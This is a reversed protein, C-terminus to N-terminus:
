VQKEKLKFFSAMWFIIYLSLPLFYNIFGTWSQPLMIVGKTTEYPGVRMGNSYFMGDPMIEEPIMSRLSVYNLWLLISGIAIVGLGTKVFSNKEFALSGFHAIASIVFFLIISAIGTIDRFDYVHAKYFEISEPTANAPIVAMSNYLTCMLWNVIYYSGMFIIFFLVQTMLFSVIIKELASSPMQLFQIGKAKNQFFSYSLSSFISGSFLLTLIFIGIMPAQPFGNSKTGIVTVFGQLVFQIGTLMAAYLLYRRVNEKLHKRLLIGFRGLNFVNNTM